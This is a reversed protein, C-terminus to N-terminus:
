KKQVKPSSVDFWPELDFASTEDAVREGKLEAHDSEREVVIEYSKGIIRPHGAVKQKNLLGWHKVLIRKDPFDGSLVKDIEYVCAVLAGTYPEISEPSPVRSMEVLKGLVRAQKPLPPLAALRALQATANVNIEDASLVRSYLAIRQLGSTLLPSGFIIRSDSATKPREAGQTELRKGNVFVEFQAGRRNVVLHAHKALEASSVSRAKGDGTFVTLKNKELYVHFSPARFLWGSVTGGDSIIVCELAAAGHKKWSAAINKADSEKIMYEGGDFVMEGFRGARATGSPVLEAHHPLGSGDTWQNLSKRDQWLFQLGEANSPWPAAETAVAPAAVVQPALKLGAKESGAIWADPYAKAAGPRTVRVWAEMKDAQENFRGLWVDPQTEDPPAKEEENKRPVYPGTMVVFRPHNSWRPHYLAGSSACPADFNVHWSRSGNEAFLTAGKHAGDFVWSVGSEDPACSPWCGNALKQSTATKGNFHIVGAQPWPFIGSALRGDRSLQINDPTLSSEHYVKEETEPHDLRCRWLEEAILSRSKVLSFERVSYVWEVGTAPDRWCDVAYGDGLEVPPSGKWDTRCVTIAFRKSGKAGTFGRRTFIITRGDSSLIPRSYNGQVNLITREGLGDRTDIGKLLQENNSSFQDREGPTQCESWIIRAHAGTVSEIEKSVADVPGDARLCIAPAVAVLMSLLRQFKSISKRM